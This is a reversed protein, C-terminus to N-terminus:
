LQRQTQSLSEPRREVSQRIAEFAQKALTRRDVSQSALKRCLTVEVNIRKESLVRIAHKFFPEADVFPVAPHVGHAHPYRIAVPQIYANAYVAAGFLRPHFRRVSHGDTITGEPFVAISHGRRLRFAIQEMAQNAANKGGRQIFLTGARATLMGLAPWDRIEAKSVFSVPFISALVPIDLWSIHNSVALVPHEPPTGLVKIHLGLIRAVCRMWWSVVTRERDGPPKTDGHRLLTTTIVLGVAVHIAILFLRWAIRINRM